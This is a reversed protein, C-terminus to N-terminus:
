WSSFWNLKTRVFKHWNRGRSGWCNPESRWCSKGTNFPEQMAYLLVLISNRCKYGQWGVHFEPNYRKSISWENKNSGEWKGDSVEFTHGRQRDEELELCFEALKNVFAFLEIHMGVGRTVM